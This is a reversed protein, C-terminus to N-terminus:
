LVKWGESGSDEIIRVEEELLIGREELVREQALRILEVAEEFSGSGHNILFNSHLESFSVDGIRFGKMGCEELLRGAKEGQPNKFTSGSTKKNIPQSSKRKDRVASFEDRVPESSRRLRFTVATIIGLAPFPSRRYGFEIEERSREELEGNWNVFEVKEVFEGIEVGFAGANMAVAGGVTAPFGFLRYIGELNERLSFSILEKLPTGASARIRFGESTKEAYVEKGGEVKLVVGKLEGFITNSGGGLVFLPLDRERSFKIAEAIEQPTGARILYKARKGIGISTFGSLPVDCFIEVM